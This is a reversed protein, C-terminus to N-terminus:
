CPSCLVINQHNTSWDGNLLLSRITKQMLSSSSDSMFLIMTQRKYLQAGRTGSLGEMRLLSLSSLSLACCTVIQSKALSVVAHNEQHVVTQGDKLVVMLFADIQVVKNPPIKQGDGVQRREVASLGHHWTFVLTCCFSRRWVLYDVGVHGNINANQQCAGLLCPIDNLQQM